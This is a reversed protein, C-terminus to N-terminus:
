QKDRLNEKNMWEEMSPFNPQNWIKAIPIINHHLRFVFLEKIYHSWKRQVVGLSLVVLSCTHEWLKEPDEVDNPIM